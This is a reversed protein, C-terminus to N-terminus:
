FIADHSCCQVQEPSSSGRPHYFAVQKGCPGWAHVVGKKAPLRHLCSIKGTRDAYCYYPRVRRVPHGDADVEHSSTRAREVWMSM